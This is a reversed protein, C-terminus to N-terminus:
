GEGTESWLTQEENTQDAAHCSPLLQKFSEVPKIVIVNLQLSHLLRAKM